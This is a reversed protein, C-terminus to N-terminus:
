EHEDLAEDHEDAESRREAVQPHTALDDSGDLAGNGPRCALNQGVGDHLSALDSGVM